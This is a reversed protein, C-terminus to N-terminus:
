NLIKNNMELSQTILESFFFLTMFDSLMSALEAVWCGDQGPHGMWAFVQGMDRSINEILIM